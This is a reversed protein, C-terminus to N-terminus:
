LGHKELHLRQKELKMAQAYNLCTKQTCRLTSDLQCYCQNCQVTYMTGPVCKEEDPNLALPMKVAHGTLKEREECQPIGKCVTIRDVCNCQVCGYSENQHCKKGSLKKAEMKILGKKSLCLNEECVLNNSEQCLCGNCDIRYMRGPECKDSLSNLARFEEIDQHKFPFKKLKTKSNLRITDRCTDTCIERKLYTCFCTQCLKKVIKGPTSCSGPNIKVLKKLSGHLGSREITDNTNTSRWHRKKLSKIFRQELCAMKTCMLVNNFGCRCTNCGAKYLHGIICSQGDHIEPLHYNSFDKLNSLLSQTSSIFYVLFLISTVVM